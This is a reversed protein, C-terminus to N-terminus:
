RRVPKFVTALRELITADDPVKILYGEILAAMATATPLGTKSVSPLIPGGVASFVADGEQLDSPRLGTVGYYIYNQLCRLVYNLYSAGPEVLEVLRQQQYASIASVVEQILAKGTTPLLTGPYELQQERGEVPHRQYHLATAFYARMMVYAGVTSSYTEDELANLWAYQPSMKGNDYHKHLFRNTIPQCSLALDTLLGLGTSAKVEPTVPRLWRIEPPPLNAEAPDSLVPEGDKLDVERPEPVKVRDFTEEGLVNTVNRRLHLGLRMYLYVAKEEPNLQAAAVAIAEGHERLHHDFISHHTLALHLKGGSSFINGFMADAAPVLQKSEIYANFIADRKGIIEDYAYGKIHSQISPHQALATLQADTFDAIQQLTLTAPLAVMAAM